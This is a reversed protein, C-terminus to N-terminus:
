RDSRSIELSRGKRRRLLVLAGAGTLLLVGGAPLPIPALDQLVTVTFSGSGMYGSTFALAPDDLSLLVAAGNAAAFIGGADVTPFLIELPNPTGGLNLPNVATLFDAPSLSGANLTYTTVDGVDGGFGSGTATESVALTTGFVVIVDATFSFATGTTEYGAATLDISTAQSAVPALAPALTVACAILLKRLNVM